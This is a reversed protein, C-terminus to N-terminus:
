IFFLIVTYFGYNLHFLFLKRGQGHSCKLDKPALRSTPESSNNSNRHFQMSRLENCTTGSSHALVTEGRSATKKDTTPASDGSGAVPSIMHPNYSKSKHDRQLSNQKAHRLRKLDEVHSFNSSFMKVKSQAVNLHKSGVDNFSLSKNMMRGIGKKMDSTDTERTFKQM